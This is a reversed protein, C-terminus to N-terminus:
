FEKKGFIVITLSLVILTYSLTYVGNQLLQDMPPLDGYIALNKLNTRSFDPLILFLTQSLQKTGPNDSIKGLRLLDASFNGILYTAFTLLSAVLSSTFSGYFLAFTGLLLFQLCLFTSSIFMAGIPLFVKAAAMLLLLGGTMLLILVILVAWLGLLKGLLFDARGLPKAILPLITRKDIERNILNAGVFAVVVLSVVEIAATGVNPILDREALGTFQPLLAFAAAMIGGFLLLLYLVQERVTERFVNHAITIIRAGSNSSMKIM